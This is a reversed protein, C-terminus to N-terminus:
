AILKPQPAGAGMPLRSGPSGTSGKSSWRRGKPAGASGPDSPRSRGSVLQRAPSGAPAFEFTPVQMPLAQPM